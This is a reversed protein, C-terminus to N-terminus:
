WKRSWPSRELGPVSGADRIHGANPPPNKVMLAVQSTGTYGPEERVEKSFNQLARQSATEWAITRLLTGFLVCSGVIEWAITRLLTGFM